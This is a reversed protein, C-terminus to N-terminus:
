CRPRISESYFFVMLALRCSSNESVYDQENDASITKHVQAEAEDESYLVQDQENAADIAKRAAEDESPSTQDFDQFTSM